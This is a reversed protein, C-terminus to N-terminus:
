PSSRGYTCRRPKAPPPSIVNPTVAAAVAAALRRARALASCNAPGCHRGSPWTGAIAVLWRSRTKWSPPRPTPRIRPSEGAADSERRPAVRTTRRPHDARGAGLGPSVTGPQRARWPARWTPPSPATAEAKSGAHARVRVDAASRRPRVDSLCGLRRKTYGTPYSTDGTRLTDSHTTSTGTRSTSSLPQSFGPASFTPGATPM